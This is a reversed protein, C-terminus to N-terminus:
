KKDYAGNLHQNILFMTQEIDELYNEVEEKEEDSFDKNKVEKLITNLMVMIMSYNHKINNNKM